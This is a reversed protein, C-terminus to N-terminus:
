LLIRFDVDLDATFGFTADQPLPFWNGFRFTQIRATASMINNFGDVLRTTALYSADRASRVGATISQGTMFLNLHSWLSAQGVANVVKVRGIWQVSQGRFGLDETFTVNQKPITNLQQSEEWQGISVRGVWFRTNGTRSASGPQGIDFEAVGNSGGYGPNYAM